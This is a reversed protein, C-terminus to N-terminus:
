YNFLIQLKQKLIGKKSEGKKWTINSSFTGYNIFNQWKGYRNMLYYDELLYKDFDYYDILYYTYDLTYEDGNKTVEAVIGADCSNIALIVPSNLLLTWGDEATLSPYGCMVNYRSNAIYITQNEKMYSECTTILETMNKEFNELAISNSLINKANYKNIGGINSVYRALFSAADQAFPKQVPIPPVGAIYVGIGAIVNHGVTEYWKSGDLTDHLNELGFIQNGSRDTAPVGDEYVLDTHVRDYFSQSYPIYTKYEDESLITYGYLKQGYHFVTCSYKMTGYSFTKIHPLGFEDADSIGDGDTDVKTPDTTVIQGNPLRMGMIEYVDYLGDQDADTTDIENFDRELASMAEKLDETTAAYYYNGGTENCYRIMADSSGSTVNICNISINNKKADDVITNNYNVDGDCILVISYKFSGSDGISNHNVQAKKIEKIGQNLAAVANTGGSASLTNVKSKLLEKDSTMEQITDAYSNFKVIAAEDKGYLADIFANITTKALSIRNGSMSGSVDILLALDYYLMESSDRYSIDERWNDLWIEKDVLLYTSFHTTDYSVINNKTDVKSDELIVYDDNKEDYWMVRLDSEDTTGLKTEDYSFSITAKEFKANCTIEYPNGVIGVVNATQIDINSVDEVVIENDLLGSCNTKVSLSNIVVDKQTNETYTQEFIEDGDLVSDDDSDKKNPNLGLKIEEGDLLGDEDTDEKNPNTHYKLVEDGDTLADSDTDSNWVNLDNQLEYKNTLGDRDFDEDADTIGNDDTDKKLPDTLLFILEEYDSLGDGDTDVNKIDTGVSYEYYDYIGDGDTDKEPVQYDGLNETSLNHLVIEKTYKKGNSDKAVITMTNKGIVLIKEKIEWKNNNCEVTGKYTENGDCGTLSYSISSIAESTEVSGSIKDLAKIVVYYQNIEDYLFDNTDIKIEIGKPIYSINRSANWDTLKVCNSGSTYENYSLLSSNNWLKKTDGRWFRLETTGEDEETVIYEYVYEETKNEVIKPNYMKKDASSILVDNGGNEEKSANTFNVYMVASDNEWQTFESIDLYIIDGAHFYEESEEVIGWHGYESGDVYYANNKARGGASWSNWQTTENEAYRNFTINYANKPVKVSWTTENKQTMWYTTHGNSNDIAKIKANDNKVWKEVTNDILYLTDYKTAAQASIFQSLDISVFVMVITLIGALIRKVKRNKSYSEM